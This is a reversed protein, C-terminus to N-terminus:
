AMSRSNVNHALRHSKPFIVMPIAGPAFAERASGKGSPVEEMRWFEFTVTMMIWSLIASQRKPM